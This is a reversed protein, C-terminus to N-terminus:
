LDVTAAAENLPVHDLVAERGAHAHLRGVAAPLTGLVHLDFPVRDAPERVVGAIRWRRLLCPDRDLVDDTVALNRAVEYSRLRRRRVEVAKADLTRRLRNQLDHLVREAPADGAALEAEPDVELAAERRAARDFAVVELAARDRNAHSRLPVLRRNEVDERVLEDP